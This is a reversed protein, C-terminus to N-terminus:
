ISPLRHQQAAYGLQQARRGVRGIVGEFMEFFFDTRNESHHSIAHKFIGPLIVLLLLCGSLSGVLFFAGLGLNMEM